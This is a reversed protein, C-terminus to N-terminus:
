RSFDPLKRQYKLWKEEPKDYLIFRSGASAMESGDDPNIFAVGGALIADMSQTRMKAGSFLSIDLGIGSANWFLSTKRVLQAYKHEVGITILVHDASDGLAVHLVQGVQVGRYYVPRGASLSGTQDTRLVFEKWSVDAAVAEKYTNFLVVRSASTLSVGSGNVNSFSIGGTLIAELSEIDVDIGDLSANLHVGGSRFFLTKDGVFRSFPPNIMVRVDVGKGDKHLSTELVSGAQLNRYFVPSGPHLSGLRSCVLTFQLSDPRDVPQEKLGTFESVTEGTGPEIEVYGGRIITGLNAVGKLGAVPRVIWFRSGQCGLQEYAQDIHIEAIVGDMTSNLRVDKVEGVRVGRYRLDAGTNLDEGNEFSVQIRRGLERAAAQDPYLRFVAAEEAPKGTGAPTEFELGGTVLSALSAVRLEMGSMDAKVTLGSSNWFRTTDKILHRYHAFILGYLDVSDTDGALSVGVVRGVEIQRYLIPSGASISGATDCTIRFHLGAEGEETLPAKELGTFDSIKEGKGPRVEIYHGGLLTSLGSFGHSGFSPKVVWFVTGARTAEEALPHLMITLRVKSLDPMITRELVKGITIGKFKVETKGSVIGEVNKFSVNIIIGPRFVDEEQKVVGSLAEDRSNYLSFMHGQPAPQGQNKEPTDFAVDGTLM